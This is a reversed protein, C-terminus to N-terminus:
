KHKYLVKVYHDPTFGCPIPEINPEMSALKEPFISDVIRKEINLSAQEYYGAV